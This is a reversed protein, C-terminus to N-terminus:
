KRNGYIAKRLSIAALELYALAALIELEFDARDVLCDLSEDFLIDSRLQEIKALWCKNTDM